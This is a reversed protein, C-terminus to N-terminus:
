TGKLLSATAKEATTKFANHLIATSKDFV